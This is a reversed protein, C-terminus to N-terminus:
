LWKGKSKKKKRIFFLGKKEKKIKKKEFLKKMDKYDKVEVWVDGIAPYEIEVLGEEELLNCCEEARKKSINLNKAIEGLKIKGRKNVLSIIRDFDTVIRHKKLEIAMGKIKEVEKATETFAKPMGVPKSAEIEKAKHELEILNILKNFSDIVKTTDIDEIRREIETQPVNYTKMLRDIKEEIELLRSENIKGRAKEELIRRVRTPALARAPKAGAAEVKEVVKGLRAGVKEKKIIVDEPVEFKAISDLDAPIIEYGPVGRIKETTEKLEKKQKAIDRKKLKLLKLKERHDLMRMRFEQDTIRRKLYETELTKMLHNVDRIKENIDENQKSINSYIIKIGGVAKIVPAKKEEVLKELKRIRLKLERVKKKWEELEKLEAKTPVRKVVMRPKRKAGKEVTKKKMAAKKIEKKEGLEEFKGKTGAKIKEKTIEKKSKRKIRFFALITALLGEKAM